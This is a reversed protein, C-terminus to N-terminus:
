RRAQRRRRIGIRVYIDDSPESGHPRGTLRTERKHDTGQRESRNGALGAKRNTSASQNGGHHDCLPDGEMRYPRIAYYVARGRNGPVTQAYGEDVLADIAKLASNKRAGLQRALATKTLERQHQEIARSAREMLSSPRAVAREDLPARTTARAM